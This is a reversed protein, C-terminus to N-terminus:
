EHQFASEMEIVARRYQDSDFTFPGFASYDREPRFPQGFQEWSFQGENKLIRACLPWCGVEGCQCGLLYFGNDAFIPDASAGMFYEDLPGFKFFAPVIGGYGGTPEYRREREFEEILTTVRVGNVLPVISLVLEEEKLPEISFSLTCLERM